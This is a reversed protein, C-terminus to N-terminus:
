NQRLSEALETLRKAEEMLREAEAERTLRAEQRAEAEALTQAVGKYTGTEDLFDGTDREDVGLMRALYEDSHYHDGVVALEGNVYLASWEDWSYRVLSPLNTLRPMPIVM